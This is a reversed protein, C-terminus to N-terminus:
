IVGDLSDFYDFFDGGIARCPVSTAAVEFRAGTYPARPFLARQIEAAIRLEQESRARALTERYQRLYRSGTWSRWCAALSSREYGSRPARSHNTGGIAEEPNGIGQRRAQFGEGGVERNTAAGWPSADSEGIVQTIRHLIRHTQCCRPEQRSGGGGTRRLLRIRRIRSLAHPHEEPSNRMM